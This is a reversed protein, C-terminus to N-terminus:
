FYLDMCYVKDFNCDKICQNDKFIGSCKLIGSEDWLYAQGNKWKNFPSPYNRKFILLEVSEWNIGNPYFRKYTGFLEGNQYNMDYELQGNAYWTTVKGEAKDDIYNVEANVQGNEHWLTRNGHRKGDKLEKREKKQGNSYYEYQTNSVITGLNYNIEELIQSTDNWFLDQVKHFGEYVSEQNKQGNDHFSIIETYSGSSNSNVDQIMENLEDTQTKLDKECGNAYIFGEGLILSFNNLSIKEFPEPATDSNEDILMMVGFMNFEEDQSQLIKFYSKLDKNLQKFKKPELFLMLGEDPESEFDMDIVSSFFTSLNNQCFLFKEIEDSDPASKNKEFSIAENLYNKQFDLYNKILKESDLALSYNSIILISLIALKLVKM